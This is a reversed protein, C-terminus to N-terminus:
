SRPHRPRPRTSPTFLSPFPFPVTYEAVPSARPRKKIFFLPPVSREYARATRPRGEALGLLPRKM